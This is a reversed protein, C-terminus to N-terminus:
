PYKNSAKPLLENNEKNIKDSLNDLIQDNAAVELQSRHKKM